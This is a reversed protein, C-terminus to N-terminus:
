TSDREGRSGDRLTGREGSEEWKSRSQRLLVCNLLVFFVVGIICGSAMGAITFALLWVIGLPDRPMVILAWVVHATTSTVAGVLPAFRQAAGVVLGTASLVVLYTVSLFAGLQAEGLPAVVFTWFAGVGLGVGIGLLTTQIRRHHIAKLTPPSTHRPPNYPEFDGHMSSPGYYCMRSYNQALDALITQVSKVLQSRLHESLSATCSSGGM